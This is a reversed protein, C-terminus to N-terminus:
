SSLLSYVIAKRQDRGNAQNMCNDDEVIGNHLKPPGVM